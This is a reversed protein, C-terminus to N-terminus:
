FILSNFNNRLFFLTYIYGTYYSILLRKTRESCPPLYSWFTFFRIWQYLTSLLHFNDLKKQLIWKLVDFIEEEKLAKEARLPSKSGRIFGTMQRQRRLRRNNTEQSCKILYKNM